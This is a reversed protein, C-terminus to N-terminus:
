RELPATPKKSCRQIWVGSHKVLLNQPLFGRSRIPSALQVLLETDSEEGGDERKGERDGATRQLRSIYGQGGM